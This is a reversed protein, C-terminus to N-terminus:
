VANVKEEESKEKAQVCKLHGVLCGLSELTISALNCLGSRNDDCKFERCNLEISKRHCGTIEVTQTKEIKDLLDIANILLPSYGGQSGKEINLKTQDAKWKLDTIMWSLTDILEKKEAKNLIM